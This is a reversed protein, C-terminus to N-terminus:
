EAQTVLALKTIKADNLVKLVRAVQGYSVGEDARVMVTLDPANVTMQQMTAALEAVSISAQDLFIEGDRNITVTQAKPPNLEQANGKPLNVPIGQEILPFTSMFAFLLLVSLDMLPTINIENLPKVSTLPIQRPM